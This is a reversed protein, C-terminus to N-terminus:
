CTRDRTINGRIGQAKSCQMKLAKWKIVFGGPLALHDKFPPNKRKILLIDSDQQLVVNIMPIPSKHKSM